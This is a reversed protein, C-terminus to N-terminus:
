AGARYRAPTTGTWRVFARHFAAVDSFGLLFAAEQISIRADGLYRKALERRVDDLLADFRTGEDKLRRQLTRQALGLKSAIQELTPAGARLHEAIAIRVRQSTTASAEPLRSLLVKAHAELVDRLTPDATVLPRELDANFFAIEDHPQDFLVREGFWERHLSLDPPAAHEFSVRAPFLQMGMAKRAINMISAFGFEIAAAPARFAGVQHRYTTESASHIIESRAHDHLLRQYRNARSLGEGFNPSAHIVFAAVTLPPEKLLGALWLGFPKDVLTPLFTWLAVVDKAPLRADPDALLEPALADSSLGARKRLEDLSLGLAAAGGVLLRAVLVSMTGEVPVGGIFRPFKRAPLSDASSYKILASPSTMPEFAVDFMDLASFWHTAFANEEICKAGISPLVFNL